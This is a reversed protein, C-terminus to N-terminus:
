IHILSLDKALEAFCNGGQPCQARGLCEQATVSLGRWARNDVEFPIEDVDGTTTENSWALIRRMQDAIGKPVDSGDDFSMQAGGSVSQARNRCLYNQKGKLIAVKTKSSYQAVAPADKSFLQDQLNKTATAIVVRHGSMAAPILYALSKGVGTGAEVVLHQRKSFAKAVATVMNRQGERTEGGGPLDQTIRDLLEIARDTDIEIVDEGLQIGGNDLPEVYPMDDDPDFSEM